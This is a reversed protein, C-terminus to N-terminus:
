PRDRRPVIGLIVRSQECGECMCKGRNDDHGRLTALAYEVARNAIQMAQSAYAEVADLGRRVSGDLQDEPEDKYFAPQGRKVLGHQSLVAAFAQRDFLPSSKVPAAALEAEHEAVEDSRTM